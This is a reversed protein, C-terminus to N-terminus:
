QSEAAPAPFPGVLSDAIVLESFDDFAQGCAGAEIRTAEGAVGEAGAQRSRGGFAASGFAGDHVLSAMTGELLDAFVDAAAAEKLIIGGGSATQSFETLRHKRCSHLTHHTKTNYPTIHHHL